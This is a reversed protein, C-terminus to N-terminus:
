TTDSSYEGPGSSAGGETVAQEWDIVHHLMPFSVVADFTEATFPLPTADAERVTVATGRGLRERAAEVM